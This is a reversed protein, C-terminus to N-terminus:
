TRPAAVRGAADPAPRPAAPELGSGVAAMTAEYELPHEHKMEDLSIRGDIWTRNMPFAGPRLHVQYMHWIIIALFALIAEYSHVVRVFDFVYRPFLAMTAEEFWLMLGTVAMLLSGWVVALYEFKEIFTYRGYKPHSRPLGIRFRGLLRRGRRSARLRGPIHLQWSLTSAADQLDKTGPLLAKFDRNGRASLLVYLLHFGCLGMLSVGAVRHVIGRWRFVDGAALVSKLWPGPNMMMPLGTVVLVTFTAILVAHQIRQSLPMRLVARPESM